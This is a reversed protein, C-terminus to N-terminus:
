SGVLLEWGEPYHVYNECYIWEVFTRQSNKITEIADPSVLGAHNQPTYKYVNQVGAFDVEEMGDRLKARAENLNALDAINAHRLAEFIILGEDYGFRDMLSSERGYKKTFNAEFSEANKRLPNDEPLAWWIDGKNGYAYVGELAEPMARLFDPELLPTIVYTPVDIKLDKAQGCAIVGAATVSSIMLVDPNARKAKTLQPIMDVDVSGFKEMDVLEIGEKPAAFPLYTAYALGLEDDSYLIAAKTLGRKKCFGCFQAITWAEYSVQTFSWNAPARLVDLPAGQSLMTVGAQECIPKMASAPAELGAVIVALVKDEDILKKGVLVTTTTDSADDYVIPEVSHGNIGGDENVKEVSYLFGDRSYRMASAYGSLHAIMGIKYPATTPAAEPACGALLIAIVLLVVVGISWLKRM